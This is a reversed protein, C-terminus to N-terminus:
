AGSSAALVEPADLIARAPVPDRLRAAYRGSAAAMVDQAEVRLVQRRFARESLDLAFGM